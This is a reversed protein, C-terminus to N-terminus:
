NGPPFTFCKTSIGQFDGTKRQLVRVHCLTCSYKHVAKCKEFIFTSPKFENKYVSMPGVMRLRIMSM